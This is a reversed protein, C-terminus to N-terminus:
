QSLTLLMIQYDGSKLTIIIKVNTITLMSVSPIVASKPCLFFTNTMHHTTQLAIINHKPIACYYKKFNSGVFHAISIKGDALM